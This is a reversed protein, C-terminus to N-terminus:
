QTHKQQQLVTGDIAVAEISYVLRNKTQKNSKQKKRPLNERYLGPQGPGWKSIRVWFDM